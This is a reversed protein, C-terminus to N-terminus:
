LRMLKGEYVDRFRGNTVAKKGATIVCSIGSPFMGPNNYDSLDKIKEPDFIIMDADYGNRIFGKGKLSFRDAPYGTMKRVAKEISVIKEENVYKRLIKPFTGFIRPHCVGENICTSDSAVFSNDWKLIKRIDDEDVFFFIFGLKGNNEIFLDLACETPDQGRLESIAQVDMGEYQKSDPADTSSIIVNDWGTSYIMCDWDSQYTLMESAIKSRINRDSLRKLAEGIGGECVWPPMLYPFQSYCATYPYFDCTIDLGRSRAKDIMEMADAIKGWSSRGAAKFHSINVSVGSDESLRIMENVSRMLSDGEGRMHVTIIRDRSKVYRCIKILEETTYFNEPTYTLGMSLGAAGEDFADGIFYLAQAMESESLRNRDFGKVAVRVSGNGVLSAINLSKPINELRNMYSSFDIWDYKGHWKGLSPETYTKFLHHTEPNIPAASFGCNGVIQTTVGQMLKSLCANDDFIMLDNHTHVDIFGPSLVKGEADITEAAPADTQGETINSIIGNKVMVTGNYLPRESGDAIYANKIVMDFLATM